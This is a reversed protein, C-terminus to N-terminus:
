ARRSGNFRGMAVAAGDRVVCELADAAHGVVEQVILVEDEAFDSLVFGALDAPLEQEEKRIGMRVRVIEDTGLVEIVSRLGNHGGHGGSERLRLTGLELAIDDEVVVINRYLSRETHVVEDAPLAPALLALSLALLRRM